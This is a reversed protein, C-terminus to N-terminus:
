VCAFDENQPIVLKKNKPQNAHIVGDRFFYFKDCYTLYDKWKKDNHFDNDQAKFGVFM